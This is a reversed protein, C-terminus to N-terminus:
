TSGEPQELSALAATIAERHQDEEARREEMSGNFLQLYHRELRARAETPAVADMEVVVEEAITFGNRELWAATRSDQPNPARLAVASGMRALDDRTVLERHFGIRGWGVAQLLANTESLLEGAGQPTALDDDDVFDNATDGEGMADLLHQCIEVQAATPWDSGSPDFDAAILLQVNQGTQIWGAITQSASWLQSVSGYGKSALTDVGHRDAHPRYVPGQGIKELLLLPRTPQGEWLDLRYFRPAIDAFDAPGSWRNFSYDPRSEDVVWSWPFAGSRRLTLVARQVFGYNRKSKDADKEIFPLASSTVAQYYLGRVTIPQMARATHVLFQRLLENQQSTLQKYPSRKM